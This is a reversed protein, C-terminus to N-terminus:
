DLGVFNPVYYLRFQKLEFNTEFVITEKSDVTTNDKIANDLMLWIKNKINIKKVDILKVFNFNNFKILVNTLNEEIINDASIANLGDVQDKM